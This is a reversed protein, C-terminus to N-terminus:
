QLKKGEFIDQTLPLKENHYDAREKLRRILDKFKNEKFSTEKFNAELFQKKKEENWNYQYLYTYWSFSGILFVLLFGFFFMVKYHRYWFFMLHM